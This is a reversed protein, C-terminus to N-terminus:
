VNLLVTCRLNKKAIKTSFLLSTSCWSPLPFIASVMFLHPCACIFTKQITSLKSYLFCNKNLRPLLADASRGPSKWRFSIFNRTELLNDDKFLYSYIYYNPCYWGNGWQVGDRTGLVRNPSFCKQGGGGKLRQMWVSESISWNRLSLWPYWSEWFSQPTCWVASDFEVTQSQPTLWVARQSTLFKKQTQRQKSKLPCNPLPSCIYWSLFIQLKSLSRATDHM